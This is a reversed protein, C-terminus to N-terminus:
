FIWRLLALVTACVHMGAVLAAFAEAAYLILPWRKPEHRYWLRLTLCALALTVGGALLLNVALFPTFRPYQDLLGMGIIILLDLLCYVTWGAFLGCAPATLHPLLRKM